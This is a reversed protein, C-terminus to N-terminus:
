RGPGPRSSGDALVSDDTEGEKDDEENAEQEDASHLSAVDAWFEAPGDLDLLDPVEAEWLRNRFHMAGPRVPTLQSIAVLEVMAGAQRLEM